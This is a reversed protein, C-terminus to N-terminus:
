AEDIGCVLLTRHYFGRHLQLTRRYWCRLGGFVLWSRAGGGPLRRGCVVLPDTSGVVVYASALVVICFVEYWTFAYLSRRWRHDTVTCGCLWGSASEDRYTRSCNWDLATANHAAMSLQPLSDSPVNNQSTLLLVGVPCFSQIGPVHRVSRALLAGGRTTNWSRWRRCSDPIELIWLKFV